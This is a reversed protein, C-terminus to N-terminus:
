PLDWVAEKFVRGRHEYSDFQDFSACAPSLLVIDGKSATASAAAVAGPITEVRRVPVTGAFAKEIKSASEGVALISKVSKKVPGLIKSYDNGKDRGGLILVIPADFSQVAYWVSEVNTAKSDNIYRV